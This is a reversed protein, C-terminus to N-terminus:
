EDGEHVSEKVNSEALVEGGAGLARVKVYAVEPTSFKTQFGTNAVTAVPQLKSPAEGALLEWASVQTNGNWAVYVDTKTGSLKTAVGPRGEPEGDWPQRYVRGLREGAPFAVQYLPQGEADLEAFSAGEGSYVIRNGDGLAQEDGEGLAFSGSPSPESGIVRGGTAGVEYIRGTGRAAIRLDGDSVRQVADVHFYDYPKGRSGPPSSKSASLPVHGISDWEWMVLGTKVDIEQVISDLVVRSQSKAPSRGNAAAAIAEGGAAVGGIEVPEYSTIFASGNATLEIEHMDARLGNGAKVHAVVKYASNVIVDEGFGFGLSTVEGQWWVLDPEGEYTQVDFDDADLGTPLVDFWVLRGSSEFIMPGHEGPGLYPTAFIDGPAAAASAPQQITLVPPKVNNSEYQQQEGPTGPYEFAEEYVPHAERAVTFSSAVKRCGGNAKVMARVEVQEGEDFPTSPVFSGGKASEYARLAGEHTGSRSGVVSIERLDGVPVGRFSIQSDPPAATAGPLPSIAVAPVGRARCLPKHRHKKGGVPGQAGASTKAAAVGPRSIALLAALAAM